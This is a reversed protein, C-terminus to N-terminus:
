MMQQQMLPMKDASELQDHLLQVWFKHYINETGSSIFLHKVPRVNFKM